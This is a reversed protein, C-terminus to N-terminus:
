LRHTLMGFRPHNMHASVVECHGFGVHQKAIIRRTSASFSSGDSGSKGSMRSIASAASRPRQPAPNPSLPDPAPLLSHADADRPKTIKTKVANFSSSTVSRLKKVRSSGKTWIRGIPSVPSSSDDKSQANAPCTHSYLSCTPSVQQRAHAAEPTTEASSIVAEIRTRKPAAAPTTPTNPNTAMTTSLTRSPSNFPVDIDSHESHQSLFPLDFDLEFQRCACSSPHAAPPSRRPAPTNM